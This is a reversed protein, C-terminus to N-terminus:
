ELDAEEWIQKRSLRCLILCRGGWRMISRSARALSKLILFGYTFVTVHVRLSVQGCPITDISLQTEKFRTTSRNRFYPAVLGHLWHLHIL